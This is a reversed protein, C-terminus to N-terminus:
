IARGKQSSSNVFRLCLMYVDRTEFFLESRGLFVFTSGDVVAAVDNDELYIVRNTHEIVASFLFIHKMSSPRLTMSSKKHKSYKKHLNLKSILLTYIVLWNLKLHKYIHSICSEKSMIIKGLMRPLFINLLQARLFTTICQIAVEWVTLVIM